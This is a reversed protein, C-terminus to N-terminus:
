APSPQSDTVSWLRRELQIRKTHHHVQVILLVPWPARNVPVKDNSGPLLSHSSISDQFSSDRTIVEVVDEVKMMKSPPFGALTPLLPQVLAGFLINYASACAALPSAARLLQCAPGDRVDISAWPPATAWARTRALLQGPSRQDCNIWRISGIPHRTSGVSQPRGRRVFLWVRPM